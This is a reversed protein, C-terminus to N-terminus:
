WYFLCGLTETIGMNSLLYVLTNCSMKPNSNVYKKLTKRAIGSLCCKASLTWSFWVASYMFSATLSFHCLPLGIANDIKAIINAIVQM